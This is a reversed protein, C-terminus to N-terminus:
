HVLITIDRMGRQQLQECCSVLTGGTDLIDDVIVAQQGVQGSISVHVAVELTRRKELVVVEQPMAAARAVAQCRDRAGEDPAAITASLLERNGAGIDRCTLPLCRYPFSASRHEVISM